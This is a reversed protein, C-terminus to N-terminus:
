GKRSTPSRMATFLQPYTQAGGSLVWDPREEQATAPGSKSPTRSRGCWAGHAFGTDEPHPQPNTCLAAGYSVEAQARPDSVCDGEQAPQLGPEGRVGRHKLGPNVAPLVQTYLHSATPSAKGSNAVGMLSQHTHEVHSSPSKPFRNGHTSQASFLSVHSLARVEFLIM